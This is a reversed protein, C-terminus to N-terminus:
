IDKSRMQLCVNALVSLRLASLASIQHRAILLTTLAVVRLRTRVHLGDMLAHHGQVDLPMKLSEGEEIIKGLAFRPVSDAAALHIPHSFSTFSVWPIATM